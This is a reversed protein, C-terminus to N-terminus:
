IDLRLLVLEEFRRRLGDIQGGPVSRPANAAPLESSVRPTIAGIQSTTRAAVSM